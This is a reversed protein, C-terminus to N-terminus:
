RSRRHKTARDVKNQNFQSKSPQFKFKKELEQSAQKILAPVPNEIELEWDQSGDPYATQDLTLECNFPGALLSRNTKSWSFQQLKPGISKFHTQLYQGVQGNWSLQGRKVLTQAEPLSLPDNIEIVEHYKTQVQHPDPVKMTEEARNSLLRIRLGCLHQRLSFDPSDYYYNAQIFSQKRPYAALMHQYLEKTLLYKAEIERDKSM